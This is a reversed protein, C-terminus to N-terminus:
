SSLAACAKLEEALYARLANDLIKVFSRDGGREAQAKRITMAMYVDPAIEVTTAVGPRKAEPTPAEQHPAKPEQKTPKAVKKPEAPAPTASAALMSDLMSASTFKTKAKEM